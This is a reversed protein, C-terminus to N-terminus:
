HATTEEGVHLLDEQNLIEEVNLWLVPRLQNTEPLPAPAAAQPRIMFDQVNNQQQLPLMHMFMGKIYRPPIHAAIVPDAAVVDKQLIHVVTKPHDVLIAFYNKQTHTVFLYSPILPRTRSLHMRKFIDLVVVVKGRMHFIGAIALPANPVITVPPIKMVHDVDLAPVAYLEGDIEFLFFQMREEDKTAEPLFDLTEVVPEVVTDM